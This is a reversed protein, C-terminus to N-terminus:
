MFACSRVWPASSNVYGCVSSNVYVCLGPGRFRVTIVGQSFHPTTEALPSPFFLFFIVESLQSSHSPSAAASAVPNKQSETYLLARKGPNGKKPAEKNKTSLRFGRAAPLLLSFSSVTLLSFLSFPPTFTKGGTLNSSVIERDTTPRRIRQAVSAQRSSASLRRVSDHQPRRALAQTPHHPGGLLAEYVIHNKLYNNKQLIHFITSTLPHPHPSSPIPPRYAAM